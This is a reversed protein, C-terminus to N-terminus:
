VYWDISVKFIKVNKKLHGFIAFLLFIIILLGYFLWYELQMYIDYHFINNLWNGKM